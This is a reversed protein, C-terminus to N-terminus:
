EVGSGPKPSTGTKIRHALTRLVLELVFEGEAQAQDARDCVIQVCANREDARIAEVTQANFTLRPRTSERGEPCARIQQLKGGLFDAEFEM